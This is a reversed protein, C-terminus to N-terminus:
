EKRPSEGSPTNMEGTGRDLRVELMGGVWRNVQEAHSRGSGTERYFPKDSWAIEAEMTVSEHVQKERLVPGPKGAQEAGMQTVRRPVRLKLTETEGPAIPTLSPQRVMFVPLGEVMLRDNLYLRYTKSPEDYTVGRVENYVYLTRGSRNYIQLTVNLSEGDDDVAFRRVELDGNM